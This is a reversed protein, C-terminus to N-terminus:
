YAVGTPTRSGRSAGDDLNLDEPEVGILQHLKMIKKCRVGLINKQEIGIEDAKRSLNL